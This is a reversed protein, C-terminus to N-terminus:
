RGAPRVLKPYGESVVWRERLPVEVLRVPINPVKLGITLEFTVQCADNDCQTAKVVAHRADMGRMYNDLFEPGIGTKSAETFYAFADAYRKEALLTWRRQAAAGVIREVEAQPAGDPVRESLQADRPQTACGSLLTLAALLAVFAKGTDGSPATTHLTSSEITLHNSQM